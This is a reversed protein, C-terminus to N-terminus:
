GGEREHSLPFSAYKSPAVGVHTKFDRSFDYLSEYGLAFAVDSINGYDGKLMEKAKELRLQKIYQMPSIAYVSKFLKRFYVTSLGAAKALDDNYLPESFHEAVYEVAPLLLKKKNKPIYESQRNNALAILLAYGDRISKIELLPEKIHRCVELRRFIKLIEDGNNVSVSFINESTLPCEFEMAYFHGSRICKWEYTSGKPLVALTSKNSSIQRDGCHYVTEGEYKMIIAWRERRIRKSGINAQSYLCNVSLIRQIIIKSLLEAVDKEEFDNVTRVEEM